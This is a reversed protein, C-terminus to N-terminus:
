RLRAIDAASCKRNGFSHEYYDSAANVVVIQVDAPVAGVASLVDAGPMRLEPFHRRRCFTRIHEFLKLLHRREERSERSLTHGPDWGTRYAARREIGRNPLNLIELE